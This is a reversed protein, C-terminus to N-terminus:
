LRCAVPPAIELVGTDPEVTCAVVKVVALACILPPAIVAVGIVLLAILPAVPENV